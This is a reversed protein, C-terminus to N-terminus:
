RVESVVVEKGGVATKESVIEGSEQLRWRGLQAQRSRCRRGSSLRSEQRGVKRPPALVGPPGYLMTTNLENEHPNSV